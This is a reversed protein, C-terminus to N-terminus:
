AHASAIWGGDLDGFEPTHTRRSSASPARAVLPLITATTPIARREAVTMYPVLPGSQPKPSSRTIAREEPKPGDRRDRSQSLPGSDFPLRVVQSVRFVAARSVYRFIATRRLNDPRISQATAADYRWPSVITGMKMPRPAGVVALRNAADIQHAHAFPADDFGHAVNLAALRRRRRALAAGSTPVLRALLGKSRAQKGRITSVNRASSRPLVEM